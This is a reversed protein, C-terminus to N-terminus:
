LPVLIDKQQSSTYRAPHHCPVEYTIPIVDMITQYCDSRKEFFPGM